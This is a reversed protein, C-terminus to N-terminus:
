AAKVPYSTWTRIPSRVAFNVKPHARANRWRVYTAIAANQEDHSRHDTGNLAFYRLAAFESEIWNLWSGYTPLFVLEVQNHECWDRVRAPLGPRIRLGRPEGGLEGLQPGPTRASTSPLTASSNSATRRPMSRTPAVRQRRLQPLQPVEVRDRLLLVEGPGRLPQADPGRRQVLLDDPEFPLDPRRQEPTSGGAHETRTPAPCASWAGAAAAARAASPTWSMSSHAAKPGIPVAATM